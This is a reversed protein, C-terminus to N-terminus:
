AEPDKGLNGILMVKNLGKMILATDKELFIIRKWFDLKNLPSTIKQISKLSVNTYIETTKSREHGLLSQIYRLDTGGEQLNTAYSHRLWHL